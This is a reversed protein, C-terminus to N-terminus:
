ARSRAIRAVLRAAIRATQGDRDFPPNLEAIDAAVLRNSRLVQDVLQEIHALPVGLAAPASVGPAVSGSLVDLCLTLYVADCRDLYEALAEQATHLQWRDQLHEDLCHHVGMRQAQDFLAQTNAFPSIGLVCYHFRRGQQACWDHMQRFPTGSHAHAATRLDFHADLNLVLLRREALPSQVIGQFTGWAMEHGGGLVLPLSERSLAQAVREALAQQAGPLDHDTCVIDGADWLAPEGRLSLNALAARLAQPGQAAGPRGSNRRVGEDVAFGILSVGQRSTSDFPRVRHHWRRSDGPEEQDERGQWVFPTNM